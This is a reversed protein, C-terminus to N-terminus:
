EFEVNLSYGTTVKNIVPQYIEWVSMKAFRDAEEASKQEELKENMKKRAEEQIKAHDEPEMTIKGLALLGREIDGFEIDKESINIPELIAHPIKIHVIMEKEDLTIDDKSLQALDVTYTATGKYTLLQTKTFIKLNALGTDTLQVADSVNITYVVLTKRQDSEGLIADQFNAAIYGLVGNNELTLDRGEIPIDRDIIGRISGSLNQFKIFMLGIAVFMALFILTKLLEFLRIGRRGKSGKIAGNRAAEEVKTLFEKTSIDSKPVTVKDNDSM